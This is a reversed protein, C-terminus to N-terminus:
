RAGKRRKPQATVPLSYGDLRWRPALRSMTRGAARILTKVKAITAPHQENEEDTWVFWVVGRGDLDIGEIWYTGFPNWPCAKVSVAKGRAGACNIAISAEDVQDAIVLSAALKDAPTLHLVPCGRAYEAGRRLFDEIVVFVFPEDDELDKMYFVHLMLGPRTPPDPPANRPRPKLPRPTAPQDPAGGAFVQLFMLAVSACTGCREAKVLARRQAFAARDHAGRVRARAAQEVCDFVGCDECNVTRSGPHGAGAAQRDRPHHARSPYAGSGSGVQRHGSGALSSPESAYTSPRPFKGARIWRNLSSRDVGIRKELEAIGVLGDDKRGRALVERMVELAISRVDAETLGAALAQQPAIM